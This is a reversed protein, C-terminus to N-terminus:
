SGWGAWDKKPFVVRRSTEGFPVYQKSGDPGNVEVIITDPWWLDPYGEECVYVPCGEYAEFSANETRGEALKFGWEKQIYSFQEETYTNNRIGTSYTEGRFSVESAFSPQIGFEEYTLYWYETPSIEAIMGDAEASAYLPKNLLEAINATGDELAEESEICVLDGQNDGGFRTFTEELQFFSYQEMVEDAIADLKRMLNYTTGNMRGIDFSPGGILSDYSELIHLLGSEEDYLLLEPPYPNLNQNFGDVMYSYIMLDCNLFEERNAEGNKVPLETNPCLSTVPSESLCQFSDELDEVSIERPEECRETWIYLEGRYMVAPTYVLPRTAYWVWIGIIGVGVFLVAAIYLGKYHEKRM